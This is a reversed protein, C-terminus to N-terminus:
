PPSRKWAHQRTIQQLSFQCRANTRYTPFPVQLQAVIDTSGKDPLKIQQHEPLSPEAVGKAPTLAGAARALAAGVPLVDDLSGAVAGPKVVEPPGSFAVTRLVRATHTM